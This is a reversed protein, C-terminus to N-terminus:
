FLLCATSGFSLCISQCVSLSPIKKENKNIEINQYMVAITPEHEM